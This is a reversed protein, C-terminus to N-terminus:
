FYNPNISFIFLNKRKFIVNWYKIKRFINEFIEKQLKRIHEILALSECYWNQNIIAFLNNSSKPYESFKIFLEKFNNWNFDNIVQKIFDLYKSFSYDIVEKLIHEKSPFHYYLSAKKMNLTDAIDQMSVELVKKYFLEEIQHLIDQKSM